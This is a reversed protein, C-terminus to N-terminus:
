PDSINCTHDPCSPPRERGGLDFPMKEGEIERKTRVEEEEEEWGRELGM